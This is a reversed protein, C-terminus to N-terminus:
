KPDGSLDPTTFSGDANMGVVFSNGYNRFEDCRTVGDNAGDGNKKELNFILMYARGYCWESTDRGIYSYVYNDDALRAAGSVTSDSTNLPDVPLTTGLISELNAWSDTHSGAWVTMPYRGNNDNAYMELATQITKVDNLRKADRASERASSLSSLVVTALIGIIAVVVLLEILTFGKSTTNM